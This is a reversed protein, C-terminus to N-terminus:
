RLSKALIRGRSALRGGPGPPRDLLERISAVTDEARVSYRPQLWRGSRAAARDSTMVRVFGERRLRRLVWRDYAGLPCAATDVDRGVADSLLRRARGFEQAAEAESLHRWSRHHMGHSGIAMGDEALERLQSSALSGPQDIRGALVYFEAVLGRDRLAPLAEVADSDNGDDFSLRVDPRSVALDLVDHFLGRGIWYHGEGPELARRPSGVGHFCLNLM